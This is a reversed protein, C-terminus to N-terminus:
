KHVGGQRKYVDLHTYSVAKNTNFNNVVDKTTGQLYAYTGGGLVMAATLAVALGTAVVKKKNIKM